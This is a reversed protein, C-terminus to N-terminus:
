RPPTRWHVERRWRRHRRECTRGSMLRRDPEIKPPTGAPRLVGFPSSTPSEFVTYMASAPLWWTLFTSRTVMRHCDDRARRRPRRAIAPGRRRRLKGIRLGHTEVGRLIYVDRLLVGVAYPPEVDRDLDLEPGILGVERAGSSMDM